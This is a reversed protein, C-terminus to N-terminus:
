AEEKFLLTFAYDSLVFISDGKQVVWDGVSAVIDGSLMLRPTDKIRYSVTVGDLMEDLDLISATINLFRVAKVVSNRSKYYKM